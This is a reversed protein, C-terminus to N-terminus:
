HFINPCLGPIGFVDGKESENVEIEVSDSPVGGKKLEKLRDM